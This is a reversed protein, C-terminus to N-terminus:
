NNVLWKELYNQTKEIMEDFLATAQQKSLRAVSPDYYFAEFLADKDQAFYADILNKQKAAHQYVIASVNPNIPGTFVPKVSDGSFVANTEVIAGIPMDPMQGQNPLNVNTVLDQHGLLARIQDVGEEGSLEIRVEETGDIQGLTKQIKRQEDEKRYSVSTLYFGMDAVEQPSNLYSSPVFEALHRDGAAAIVGFRRFLDFKVKEHSTFCIDRGHGPKNREIVYGSRWNKAVFDNYLPYLDQNKYKAETVWTFHNVGQVNVKFEHRDFKTYDGTALQYIERLLNQTDFVEHCCGFAKIEPFEKYLAAVCVTMPNTYNIVWANPCYEKIKRAFERYVPITRLARNFGGPGATDGVSQYIGYKEPLHVDVEMEDFTGPLISIVVFDAGTLAQGLDNYVESTWKSKIVDKNAEILKAFYAKNRNAAAEDIDYLRLCGSVDQQSLLDGMLKKAWAKSGGGLYCINVFSM